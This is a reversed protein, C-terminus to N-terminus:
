FHLFTFLLHFSYLMFDLKKVNLNTKRDCKSSHTHIAANEGEMEKTAAPGAAAICM